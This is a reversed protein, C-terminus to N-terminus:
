IVINQKADYLNYIAAKFWNLTREDFCNDIFPTQIEYRKKGEIVYLKM